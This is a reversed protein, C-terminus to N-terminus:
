KIVITLSSLQYQSHALTIIERNDRVSLINKYAILHAISKTVILLTFM